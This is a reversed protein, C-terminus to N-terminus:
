QGTWGPCVVPEISGPLTDMTELSRRVDDFDNWGVFPVGDRVCHDVLEGKAFTVDAYLAGYRDSQGDGVFAVPGHRERYTLVANMKCTGCGVCIPHGNVFRMGGPRGDPAWMQENSIVTLDGLGAANLIPRIYFGFGDSVLAVEVGSASLWNVFPGFTPDMPCHEVAYAILEDGTARLMADQIQIAERLGMEGRDVADDYDAWSPEAFVRLLLEAVDSTSATGDFDVLVAGVSLM